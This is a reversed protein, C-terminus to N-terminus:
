MFQAGVSTVPPAESAEPRSERGSMNMALMAEVVQLLGKFLATLNGLGPELRSSPPVLSTSSGVPSQPVALEEGVM